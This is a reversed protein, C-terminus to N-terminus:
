SKEMHYSLEVAIASGLPLVSCISLLVVIRAGAPWSGLASWTALVRRSAMSASHTMRKPERARASQVLRESMSRIIMLGVSGPKSSMWEM